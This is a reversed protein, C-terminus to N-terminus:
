YLKTKSINRLSFRRWLYVIALATFVLGALKCATTLVSIWVSYMGLKILAVALGVVLMFIWMMTMRWQNFM